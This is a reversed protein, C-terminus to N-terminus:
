QEMIFKRIKVYDMVDVEGDNNFDAAKNYVGSLETQSMIYKRIKVYDMADIEGDGSVDGRVVLTIEGIKRGAYDYVKIIAGTRVISDDSEIYYDDGVNIGAILNDMSTGLPVNDIIKEEANYNQYTFDLEAPVHDYGVFIKVENEISGYSIKLTYIDAALTGKVIIEPYVDNTAVVNYKLQAFYEDTVDENRSNYLKYDIESNSPINRTTSYIRFGYYQNDPLMDEQSIHIGEGETTMAQARSVNKTFVSISEAYLISECQGTLLCGYDGVAITRDGELIINKNSLDFTYYGPHDTHVIYYDLLELNPDNHVPDGSYIMVVYSGDESVTKFKIKELKEPLSFNLVDTITVYAIYSDMTKSYLNDWTRSAMPKVDDAVAFDDDSSDYALWMYPVRDGWSNRLLWAGRGTVTQDSNKCVNTGYNHVEKGSYKGSGACYKYEYEYDDDWGIVQMAHGSDDVCHGDNRILYTKNYTGSALNLASCSYEPAQTGVYLGGNEIIATKLDDLFEARTQQDGASAPDLEALNIMPYDITSDVEYLSNGYNLIESKDFKPYAALEAKTWSLSQWPEKAGEDVLSLGHTMITSSYAYNGGQGIARQTMENNDDYIKIAETNEFGSFTDAATAYDMQRTSFLTPTAYFDDNHLMMYSEIQEISAFSWCIGLEDQDKMNTIYKKGDVNRLDYKSPLSSSASVKNSASYDVAFAEPILVDNDQNDKLYEVYDPNLYPQNAEKNKETLIVTGTKEYNKRIFEKAESALDKYDESALVEEINTASPAIKELMKASRQDNDSKTSNINTFSITPHLSEEPKQSVGLVGLSIAIIATILIIASTIKLKKNGM